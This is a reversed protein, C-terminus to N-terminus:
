SGDEGKRQDQDKVHRQYRSEVAGFGGIWINPQQPEEDTGYPVQEGQPDHTAFETFRRRSLPLGPQISRM